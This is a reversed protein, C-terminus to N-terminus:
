DGKSLALQKYINGADAFYKCLLGEMLTQNLLQASYGLWIPTYFQWLEEQEKSLRSQFWLCTVLKWKSVERNGRSIQVSCNLDRKRIVARLMNSAIQCAEVRAQTEEKM